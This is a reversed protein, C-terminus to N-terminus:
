FPPEAFAVATATDHRRPRRAALREDRAAQKDLLARRSREWHSLATNEDYIEDMPQGRDEAERLDALAACAAVVDRPAPEPTAAPPRHEYSRGTFTIWRASGPPPTDGTHEGAAGAAEGPPILVPRVLGATRLRHHRRCVPHLNCTCTPGAGSPRAHDYPVRHDIDCRWAQVRCGPFTCFPEATRVFAQQRRTPDHRPTPVIDGVGLVTRHREDIVVCRWTTTTPKDRAAEAAIQRAIAAPVAGYGDLVAPDDALDLWTSLPITLRVDLGPRRRGGCDCAGQLGRGPADSTAAAADAANAADADADANAADANAADAAEADAPAHRAAGGGAEFADRGYAGATLLHVAQDCRIQDATRKDGRRKAASVARDLGVLIAAVQEQGTTLEFRGMADALPVGQVFRRRRAKEARRAAAEADIAATAEHLRAQLTPNNIRAVEPLPLGPRVPDALVDLLDVPDAAALDADTIVRAEVLAAVDDDLDRTATVITCLKTWDLLGARLLQRTRPLRGTMFLTRSAEVVQGAGYHSLGAAAAIESAVFEEALASTDLQGWIDLEGVLRWLREALGPPSGADRPEPFAGEVIPPSAQWRAVLHAVAALQLWLAWCALRRSGVFVDVVLGLLSGPARVSPGSSVDTAPELVGLPDARDDVRGDSLEHGLVALAHRAPEGPQSRVVQIAETV